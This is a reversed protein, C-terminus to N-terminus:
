KKYPKDWENMSYSIYQKTGWLILLHCINLM